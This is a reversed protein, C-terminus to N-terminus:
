EVTRRLLMWPEKLGLFRAAAFYAILSASLPAGVRLLRTTFDPSNDFLHLVGWCVVAMLGCAIATRLVVALIPPWAFGGLRRQVWLVSAAFQLVATVATAGALGYGGMPWILALNLALNVAVAVVGIKLPTTRDQLAYFGRQVILLGCYAWVASGYLAIMGATQAADGADFEGHQFLLATLPASLLMLGVGAPLGIAIVLRIGGSLSERLGDGDGAHAQRAFQPYLVTGLAVGFVGLPFQYVRQAFYLASATGAQMPYEGPMAGTEPASFAWAILSDAITNIQTISLGLLVPLLTGALERITSKHAPWDPRFRFGRRFLASLPVALQLAGGALVGVAVATVKATPTELGPVVAVLTGIWVVNLIVPVLAPAAFHNRAHLLASLQATLCILLLYPLMVATLMVLLQTEAGGGGWAHAIWLLAEGILVFTLLVGALGVFVSAALTGASEAGRGEHERVLIPLFATSLAGEGFLRRALNPIRFAVSFADMVAGNGFAAAMLVDRTLGLLRSLFTLSGVIRLGSLWGASAHQSAPPREM